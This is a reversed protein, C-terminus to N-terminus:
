KEECSGDACAGDACSGDTCTAAAAAVESVGGTACAACARSAAALASAATRLADQAAPDLSSRSQEVELAVNDGARVKLGRVDNSQFCSLYHASWGDGQVDVMRCGSALTALAVIAFTFNRNM